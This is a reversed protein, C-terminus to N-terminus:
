RMFYRAFYMLRLLPSPIIRRVKARLSNDITLLDSFIKNIEGKKLAEEISQYKEEDEKSRVSPGKLNQQRELIDELKVETCRCNNCVFRNFFLEAAATNVLLASVGNVDYADPNHEKCGWYDGLTFDGVRETRAYRCSYCGKQYITGCVFAYYYPDDGSATKVEHKKGCRYFQYSCIFSEWGFEKTRFRYKEIPSDSNHKEALWELYALYLEQKPAGHCILDATLLNERLSGDIKGDLRARLAAIQCPLGTFFVKRGETLDRICEEICSGLESKVYKSGQLKELDREDEIAIHRVSGDEMNAAGYVKGGQNLVVRSIVAFAGGSASLKLSSESDDTLAYTRKPEHFSIAM